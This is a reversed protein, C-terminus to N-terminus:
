QYLRTRGSAPPSGSSVAVLGLDAQLKPVGRARWVNSYPVSLLQVPEGSRWITRPVADGRQSPHQCRLQCEISPFSICNSRHVNPIGPNKFARSKVGESNPAQCTAWSFRCLMLTPIKVGPSSQLPM